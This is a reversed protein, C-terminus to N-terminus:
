IAPAQLSARFSHDPLILDAHFYSNQRQLAIEISVAAAELLQASVNCEDLPGLLEIFDVAEHDGSTFRAREKFQQAFVAEFLQFLEHAHLGGEAGAGACDQQRCFDFIGLLGAEAGDIDADAAVGVAALEIAGNTFTFKQASEVALGSGRREFHDEDAGWLNFTDTGAHFDEGGIAIIGYSDPLSSDHGGGEVGFEGGVRADM